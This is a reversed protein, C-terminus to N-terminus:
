GGTGRRPRGHRVCDVGGCSRPAACWAVLRCGTLGHVDGCGCGWVRTCRPVSCTCKAPGEGAGDAVSEFVGGRGAYRDDDEEVKRGSGSDGGATGTGSDAPTATAGEGDSVVDEGEFDVMQDDAMEVPTNSPPTCPPLSGVVCSCKRSAAGDIGGVVARSSRVHPGWQRKFCVNTPAEGRILM